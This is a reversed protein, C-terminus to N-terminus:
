KAGCKEPNTGGNKLSFSDSTNPTVVLGILCDQQAPDPNLFLFCDQLFSFGPDIIIREFGNGYSINGKCFGIEM